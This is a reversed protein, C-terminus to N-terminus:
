DAVLLVFARDQVVYTEGARCTKDPAEATVTDVPPGSFGAEAVV